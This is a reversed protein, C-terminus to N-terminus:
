TRPLVDIVPRGGPGIRPQPKWAVGYVVEFTAPLGDEGRLGEYAAAVRALRRPGTLGRPRGRNANHAGLSKLERMLAELGPYALRFIEMDMVPDSFGCQVLIDGVDHMDTFRHVHVANDVSAFATRLEKLTDPGFTSFLLAGGPSLVRFLERMAGPLDAAWQLALNSWALDVVGSRLPLREIDGAVFARRRGEWLRWRPRRARSALLMEPALDLEIIAAKPFQRALSPVAYGTGSGADLVRQPEIRFLPLRELMRDCVSRQLTAAADYRPAARGFARRLERKDIAFADSM